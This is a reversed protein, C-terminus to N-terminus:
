NRKDFPTKPKLVIGIIYHNSIDNETLEKQTGTFNLLNANEHSYVSIDADQFGDINNLQSVTLKTEAIFGIWIIFDKESHGIYKSFEKVKINDPLLSFDLTNLRKDAYNDNIKPGLFEVFIFSFTIIVTITIFVALSIKIIAKRRM